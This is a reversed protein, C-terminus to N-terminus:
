DFQQVEPLHHRLIVGLSVLSQIQVHMCLRVYVCVSHSCACVSTCMCLYLVCIYLVCVSICMCCACMCVSAHIACVYVCLCLCVCICMFRMCLCVCVYVCKYWACGDGRCLDRTIMNAVCLVCKPFRNFGLGGKSERLQRGPVLTFGLCAIRSLVTIRICVKM